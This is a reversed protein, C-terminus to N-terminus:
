NEASESISGSNPKMGGFFDMLGFDIDSILTPKFDMPLARSSDRPTTFMSGSPLQGIEDAGSPTQGPTDDIQTSLMQNQKIRADIKELRAYIETNLAVVKAIQKVHQDVEDIRVSLADTHRLLQRSSSKQLQASFQMDMKRVSKGFGLFFTVFDELVLNGGGLTDCLEHMMQAEVEQLDFLLVFERGADTRLFSTWEDHTITKTDDTDIAKFIEVLEKAMQRRIEQEEGLVLQRDAKAKGMAAEVFVATIVNLVGLVTMLVYLLLVVAGIGTAHTFAVYVYVWDQGGIAIGLLSTLTMAFTPFVEIFISSWHVWDGDEDAPNSLSFQVCILEIFCTAFVVIICAFCICSWLLPLVAHMLSLMILRLEKFLRVARLVRISRAARMLRLVKLGSMDMTRSSQKSGRASSNMAIDLWHFFVIVCDLLNWYVNHGLFFDISYTVLRLVLETTFFLAFALDVYSFSVPPDKVHVESSNLKSAISWAEIHRKISDDSEMARFFTDGLISLTIIVSVFERELFRRMTRRTDDSLFHNDCRELALRVPGSLRHVMCPNNQQMLMTFRKLPGRDAGVLRNFDEMKRRRTAEISDRARHANFHPDTPSMMMARAHPELSGLATINGAVFEKDKSGITTSSIAQRNPAAVARLGDTSVSPFLDVQAVANEQSGLDGQSYVQTFIQNELLSLQLAIEKKHFQFLNRIKGELLPRAGELTASQDAVEM